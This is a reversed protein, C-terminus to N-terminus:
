ILNIIRQASAGSRAQTYDHTQLPAVSLQHALSMSSECQYLRLLPGGRTAKVHECVYWRGGPKLLKYLAKINEEQNPISCLCLISVICDISGPEIIKNGASFSSPDSLSEIGLPIVEYIDDLGVETVRRRLATASQPNPEVGYIKKLGGRSGDKRRRAVGDEARDRDGGVVGGDGSGGINIKLFTDVWNGSGAGIEIVTGGVPVSVVSQGIKGGRVRGELLPIVYQETNAKVQPGATAWFQGFLADGFASPSLLTGYSRTSVLTRVTVPIHSASLLMFLWPSTLHVLVDKVTDWTTTTSSM